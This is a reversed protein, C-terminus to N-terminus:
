PLHQMSNRNWIHRSMQKYAGIEVDSSASFAFILGKYQPYGNQECDDATLWFTIDYKWLSVICHAEHAKFVPVIDNPQTTCLQLRYKFAMFGASVRMVCGVFHVADLYLQIMMDKQSTTKWTSAKDSCLRVIIRFSLGNFSFRCSSQPECASYLAAKGRIISSTAISKLNIDAQLDTSLWVVLKPM